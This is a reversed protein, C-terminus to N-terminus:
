FMRCHDLAVELPEYAGVVPDRHTRITGEPSSSMPAVGIVKRNFRRVFFRV